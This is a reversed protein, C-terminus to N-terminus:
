DEHHDAMYSQPALPPPFKLFEADEKTLITADTSLFLDGELYDLKGTWDSQCGLSATGRLSAAMRM